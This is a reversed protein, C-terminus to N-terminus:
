LGFVREATISAATSGVGEAIISTTIVAREVRPYYTEIGGTQRRTPVGKGVYRIAINETSRANSFINHRVINGAGTGALVGVASSAVAVSDFQSLDGCERYSDYGEKAFQIAVLESSV